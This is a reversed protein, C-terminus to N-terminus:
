LAPHMPAINLLQALKEISTPKTLHHDFGAEIALRRDEDHGYGTLAVLLLNRGLSTSRVRRAVEYGNMGPMAIDLFM